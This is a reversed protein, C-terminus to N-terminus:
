RSRPVSFAAEVVASVEVDDPRLAFEPAGGGGPGSQAALAARAVPAAAGVGPDSISRVAVTGLELADAYDQARRQADRVAKQRTARETKVRKAKTLDWQVHGISLGDVSISWSVWNALEDFDSFTAAIPVVASYVLPLQQGDSNWPRRASVRVQDFSYWTVPGRKPHHLAEISAKVDALAASIASFVPEPQPGELSLAARVTACEPPVTVTHTGRVRIDIATM